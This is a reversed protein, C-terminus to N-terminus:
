AGVVLPTEGLVQDIDLLIKVGGTTKAMGMIYSTDLEVGFNPTKELDGAEVMVVESVQDVVAGMLATQGSPSDVEVVIICTREDPQRYDLDFRLRLDIVPIVKGRLNVVGLVFPYTQPVKTVEIMGIIERVRTIEVGYDREDLRFTLYKGALDALAGGGGADGGATHDWGQSHVEEMGEELGMAAGKAALRAAPPGDIARWM